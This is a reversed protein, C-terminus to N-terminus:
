NEWVVVGSKKLRAVVTSDYPPIFNQLMKSAATTKLGKTCLMDKIGFMVGAMPGIDEGAALRQDLTNAQALAENNMTVYANLKPNLVDIRKLFFQTVESVSIKKARVATSVENFSAKLLDM